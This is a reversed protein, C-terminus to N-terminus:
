FSGSWQLLENNLELGQASDAKRPKSLAGTLEPVDGSRPHLLRENREHFGNTLSSPVGASMTFHNTIWDNSFHEHRLPSPKLYILLLDWKENLLPATSLREPKIIWRQPKAVVLPKTDTSSKVSELFSVISVKPSLALLHLTALPM